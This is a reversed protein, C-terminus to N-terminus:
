NQPKDRVIYIMNWRMLSKTEIFPFIVILFTNEGTAWSYLSRIKLSDRRKPLKCPDTPFYILKDNPVECCNIEDLNTLIQM